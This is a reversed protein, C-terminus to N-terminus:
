GEMKAYLKDRLVKNEQLEKDIEEVRNFLELPYPMLDLFADGIKGTIEKREALLAHIKVAYKNAPKKM